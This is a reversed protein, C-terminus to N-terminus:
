KDFSVTWQVKLAEIPNALTKCEACEVCLGEKSSLSCKRVSIEDMEVGELSYRGNLM